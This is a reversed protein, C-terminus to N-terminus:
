LVTDLSAEATFVLKILGSTEGSSRSTVSLCVAMALVASAQRRAVFVLQRTIAYYRWTEYHMLFASM